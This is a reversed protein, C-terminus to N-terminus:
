STIESEMELSIRKKKQALTILLLLASGPRPKKVHAEHRMQVM